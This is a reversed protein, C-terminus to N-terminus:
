FVLAYRVEYYIDDSEVYEEFKKGTKVLQMYTWKLDKNDIYGNESCLGVAGFPRWCHRWAESYEKDHIPTYYIMRWLIHLAYELYRFKKSWRFVLVDYEFENVYVQNFDWHKCLVKLGKQECYKLAEELDKPLAEFDCLVVIDINEVM